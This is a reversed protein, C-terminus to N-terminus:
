RGGAQPRSKRLPEFGGIKGHGECTQKGGIAVPFSQNLALLAWWRALAEPKDKRGLDDGLRPALKEGAAGAIIDRAFWSGYLM